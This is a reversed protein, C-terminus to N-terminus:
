RQIAKNTYNLITSGMGIYQDLVASQTAMKNISAQTDIASIGLDANINTYIEDLEAEKQSNLMVILPSGSFKVGAKAYGAKQAGFISLAQKRIDKIAVDASLRAVRKQLAALGSNFKSTNKIRQANILGTAIDALGSIVGSAVVGAGGAGSSAKNAPSNITTRFDLGQSNFDNM